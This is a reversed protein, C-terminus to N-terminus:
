RLSYEARKNARIVGYMAMRNHHSAPRPRQQQNTSKRERQRGVDSVLPGYRIVINSNAKYGLHVKGMVPCVRLAPIKM